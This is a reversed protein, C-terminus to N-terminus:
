HEESKLGGPPNDQGVGYDTLSVSAITTHHLRILGRNNLEALLVLLADPEVGLETAIDRILIRHKPNLTKLSMSRIQKFVETSTIM